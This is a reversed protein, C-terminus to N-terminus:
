TGECRSWCIVGLSSDPSQKIGLYNIYFVFESMESESSDSM